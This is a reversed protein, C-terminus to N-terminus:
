ASTAPKGANVGEVMRQECIRALAQSFPHNLRCIRRVAESAFGVVTAEGNAVVDAMPLENFGFLSVEGVIEGHTRSRLLQGSRVIDLRGELVLFLTRNIQQQTILPEGSHLRRMEGAALLVEREAAGTLLDFPRVSFLDFSPLESLPKAPIIM